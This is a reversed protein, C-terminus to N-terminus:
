LDPRIEAGSMRLRCHRDIRRGNASNGMQGTDSDGVALHLMQAALQVRDEGEDLLQGLDIDIPTSGIVETVGIAIFFRSSTTVSPPM